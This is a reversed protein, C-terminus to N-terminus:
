HTRNRKCQLLDPQTQPPVQPPLASRLCVLSLLEKNDPHPQFFLVDGAKNVALMDHAVTLGSRLRQLKGEVSCSYLSSGAPDILKGPVLLAALTGPGSFLRATPHPFAAALVKVEKSGLDLQCLSNSSNIFLVKGVETSGNSLVAFGNKATIHRALLSCDGSKMDYVQLTDKSTIFDLWRQQVFLLRDGLCQLALIYTPPARKDFPDRSRQATPVSFCTGTSAGTAAYRSVTNEKSVWVYGESEAAMGSPRDNVSKATVEFLTTFGSGDRSGVVRYVGGKRDRCLYIAAFGAWGAAFSIIAEVSAHLTGLTEM